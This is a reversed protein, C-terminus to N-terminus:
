QWSPGSGLCERVPARVCPRVNEQACVGACMNAYVRTIYTHLLRVRHMDFLPVHLNNFVTQMCVWM